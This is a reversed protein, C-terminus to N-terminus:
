TDWKWGIAYIWGPPCNMDTYEVYGLRNPHRMRVKDLGQPVQAAESASTGGYVWCVSPAMKPHFQVRMILEMIGLSTVQIFASPQVPRRTTYRVRTTFFVSDGHALAEPFYIQTALWGDPQITIAGARCNLVPLIEMNAQEEGDVPDSYKARVVYHDITNAGETETLEATIRRQTVTETCVRRQDIFYTAELRHVIFPQFDSADKFRRSSHHTDWGHENRNEVEALVHAGLENRLRRWRAGLQRATVLTAESTNGNSAQRATM